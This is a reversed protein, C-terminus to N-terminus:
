AVKEKKAAQQPPKRIAELHDTTFFNPGRQYANKLVGWKTLHVIAEDLSRIVAVLHGLAEARERFAIQSASLRGTRTKLEMWGVRGQELLFVMDFIGSRVGEAKLRAAVSIHRFGGNPIAFWLLDRRGAIALYDILSVQLKHESPDRKM